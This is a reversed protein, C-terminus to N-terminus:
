GFCVMGFYSVTNPGGIYPIGASKALKNVLMGYGELSPFLKDPFCCPAQPYTCTKCRKCGENSLLLYPKELREYLRDCVAKFERHGEAMGEFDFSDELPYRAAFVLARPYRLLEARCEDCTGVAPPCAWTKGYNRCMNGECLTRVEPSFVIEETSIYGFDTIGLAALDIDTTGAIFPRM